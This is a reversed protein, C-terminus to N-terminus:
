RKGKPMVALGGGCYPTRNFGAGSPGRKPMEGRQSPLTNLKRQLPNDPIEREINPAPAPLPRPKQPPAAKPAVEYPDARGSKRLIREPTSLEDDSIRRGSRDLPRRSPTEVRGGSAKKLPTQRAESLAIAVAQKRSGVKDGSSSHLKGTKFEHMVKAVKAAGKTGASGGKAYQTKTSDKFDRM